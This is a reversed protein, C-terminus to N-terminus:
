TLTHMHVRGLICLTYQPVSTRSVDNITIDIISIYLTMYVHYLVYAKDIRENTFTYIDEKNTSSNFAMVWYTVRLFM